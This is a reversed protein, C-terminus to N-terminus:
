ENSASRFKTKIIGEKNLYIQTPVVKYRFTFLYRRRKDAGNDM